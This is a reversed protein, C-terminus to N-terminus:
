VDFLLDKLDKTNTPFVNLNYCRLDLKHLDRFTMQIFAEDIISLELDNWNYYEEKLTSQIIKQVIEDKHRHKQKEIWIQYKEDFNNRVVDLNSWILLEKITYEFNSFLNKINIKKIKKNQYGEIQENECEDHHQQFIYFSLFERLEWTEMRELDSKNWNKFHTNFLEKNHQLYGEEYIKEFKNNIVLLTSSVDHYVVIAKQVNLLIEELNKIVSDTKETKPHLRTFQFNKETKLYDRWGEINQLHGGPAKFKHSSGNLEFPNETVDKGSFYHLCWSIFTGYTGGSYLIPITDKSNKM